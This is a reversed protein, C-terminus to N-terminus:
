AFHITLLGKELYPKTVYIEYNDDNAIVDAYLNEGIHRGNVMITKCIVKLLEFTDGKPTVDATFDVAITPHEKLVLCIDVQKFKSVDFDKPISALLAHERERGSLNAKPSSRDVMIGGYTNKSAETLKFEILGQSVPTGNRFIATESFKLSSNGFSIAENYFNSGAGIWVRIDGVSKKPVPDIRVILKTDTTGDQARACAGMGAVVVCNNRIYKSFGSGKITVITGEKGEKPDVSTIKPEQEVLFLGTNDQDKKM